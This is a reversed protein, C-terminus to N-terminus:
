PRDSPDAPDESPSEPPEPEGGVIKDRDIKSEVLRVLARIQKYEYNCDDLLFIRKTGEASYIVKAMGKKDWRKKDVAEIQDFHLQAGRSNRLGQEDGEVWSGRNRLLLVLFCLSFPIIGAAMYFQQDIAYPNKPEGPYKEPWGQEASTTEWGSNFASAARDIADKEETSYDESETVFKVLRNRLTARHQSHDIEMPTTTPIQQYLWVIRLFHNEQDATAAKRQSQLADAIVQSWRMKDWQDPGLPVSLDRSAAEAERAFHQLTADLQKQYEIARIRQAPYTIYGDYICWFALGLSFLSVLGLRILYPRSIHARIVEPMNESELHLPEVLLTM